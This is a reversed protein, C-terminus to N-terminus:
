WHKSVFPSCIIKAKRIFQMAGFSFGIQRRFVLVNKRVFLFIFSGIFLENLSKVSFGLRKAESHKFEPGGTQAVPVKVWQSM